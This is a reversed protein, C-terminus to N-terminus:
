SVDYKRRMQMLSERTAESLGESQAYDAFDYEFIGSARIKAIADPDGFGVFFEHHEPIWVFFTSNKFSILINSYIYEEVFSSLEDVNECSHQQGTRGYEYQYADFQSEAFLAAIKALEESSPLEPLTVSKMGSSRIFAPSLETNGPILDNFRHMGVWTVIDELSTTFSRALPPPM